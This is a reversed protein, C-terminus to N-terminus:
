VIFIFPDFFVYRLLMLMLSLVSLSTLTKFVIVKGLGQNRPFKKDLYYGVLGLVVGYLVGLIVGILLTSTFSVEVPIKYSRIIIQWHLHVIVVLLTNAITWFNAQTAIYTLAPFRATYRHALTTYEFNKGM